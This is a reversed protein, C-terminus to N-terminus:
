EENWRWMIRAVNWRLARCTVNRGNGHSASTRGGDGTPLFLIPSLCLELDEKEFVRVILDQAPKSHNVNIQGIKAM